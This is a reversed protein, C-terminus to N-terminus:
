NSNKFHFFRKFRILVIRRFKSHMLFCTTFLSSHNSFAISDLIGRFILNQPGFAYAINSPLVMIIFAISMILILITNSMKNGWHPSVKYLVPLSSKKMKMRTVIRLILGNSIIMIFFPVIVYIIIHIKRWTNYMYFGTPYKAITALEQFVLELSSLNTSNSSSNTLYECGFILIHSNILGVLFLVLISWLLASSATRFPLRSIFSGPKSAVHAFRDLSMISMLLASAQLSAFQNFAVLKCIPKSVTFASKYVNYILFRDLQWGGLLILTDIISIFSLYVMTSKSKFEACFRFILFSATNGIVGFFLNLLPYYTLLRFILLSDEM